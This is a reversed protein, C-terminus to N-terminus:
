NISALQDKQGYNKHTGLASKAGLLPVRILMLARGKSLFSSVIAKYYRRYYGLISENTFIFSKVFVKTGLSKPLTRLTFILPLPQLRIFLSNGSPQEKYQLCFASCYVCAQFMISAKPWVKSHITQQIAPITLQWKIVGVGVWGWFKYGQQKWVRKKKKQIAFNCSSFYKNIILAFKKLLKIKAKFILM